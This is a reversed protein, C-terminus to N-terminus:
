LGLEKRDAVAVSRLDSLRLVGRETAIPGILRPSSQAVVEKGVTPHIRNRGQQAAHIRSPPPPLKKKAQLAPALPEMGSISDEQVM